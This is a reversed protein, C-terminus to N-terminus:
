ASEATRPEGWRTKGADDPAACPCAEHPVRAKKAVVCGCLGCVSKSADFATAIRYLLRDDPKRLHECRRCAALRREYTAEDVPTFGSAAWRLLSKSAETVLRASSLRAGDAQEASEATPRFRPHQRDIKPAATLLYELMDPQGRAALLRRAYDPYVVCALTAREEVPHPLGLVEAMRERLEDVSAAKSLQNLSLWDEHM